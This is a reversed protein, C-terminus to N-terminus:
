KINKRKYNSEVKFKLDKKQERRLNEMKIDLITSGNNLKWSISGPYLLGVEERFDSFYGSIRGKDGPASGNVEVIKKINCDVLYEMGTYYDNLQVRGNECRIKREKITIRDYDGFFLNIYDYKLGYKEALQETNGTYYIRNIRDAMRVSDREIFVRAVEIGGFARISLLIGGMGDTKMNARLRRKESGNEYNILIKNVSLPQNLINNDELEGLLKVSSM